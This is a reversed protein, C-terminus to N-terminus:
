KEIIKKEENKDIQLQFVCLIWWINVTDIALAIRAKVTSGISSM